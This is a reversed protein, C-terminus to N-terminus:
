PTSTVTMCISQENFKIKVPVYESLIKLFPVTDGASVVWNEAVLPRRAAQRRDVLAVLIDVAVALIGLVAPTGTATPTGAVVQCTCGGAPDALIQEWAAEM